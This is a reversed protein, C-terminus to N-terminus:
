RPGVVAVGDPDLILHVPEGTGPAGAVGAVADVPADIGTDLRVQLRVHDRRHVRALVTGQLPGSDNARLATPRLGLRAPGDVAWPIPVTGLPTSALGNHVTAALFVACGLFRATPEDAPTRWVEEPRGTQVIRGARMLAVRDALTFAEDHDHTVVLATTGSLRLVRALDLALQ